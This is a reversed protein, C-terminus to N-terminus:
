TPRAAHLASWEPTTDREAEAGKPAATRDLTRLPRPATPQRAINSRNVSTRLNIKRWCCRRRRRLPPPGRRMRSSARGSRKRRATGKRERELRRADRQARSATCLSAFRAADALSAIGQLDAAVRPSLSRALSALCCALLVVIRIRSEARFSM